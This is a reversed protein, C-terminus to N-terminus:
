YTVIIILNTLDIAYRKEKQLCLTAYSLKPSDSEMSKNLYRCLREIRERTEENDKCLKYNALFRLCVPYVVSAPYLEIKEKHEDGASNNPFLTDFDHRSISHIHM